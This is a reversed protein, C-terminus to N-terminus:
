GNVKVVVMTFDDHQMTQGTFRAVEENIKNLIQQAPLAGCDCIIKNLNEEGFEEGKKNMSESIGDTFFVFVDGPEVAITQEQITQSFLPGKELGIAIGKPHMFEPAGSKSKRVILPNHGARAFRLVREQMDFLGYIVSIFIDRPVNEYFIANMESLMDKPNRRTKSLTKLIGKAMTMYFAASVGKGSVDGIVIGISQDGNMIFDYYDGGVEMAPRCISAIELNPFQPISQPLFRMQVNRAIELEKLFREREAIRSVYEPVYHEFDKVSRKSYILSVGLTLLLLLFVATGIGPASLWGAPALSILSLETLFKTTFFGLLITVIDYKIAFHAWLWALPLLFIASIHSPQIYYLHLGSLALLLTFTLTLVRPNHIKSKLYTLIFLFLILGYFLMANINRLVASIAAATDELLWLVDSEFTLYGLNLIGTLWVLVLFTLLSVGSIFLADLLAKGIERVKFFGRVMTDTLALREPWIDRNLSETASYLILIGIGAFLASFGGGLLTEQFDPWTNLAVYFFTCTMAVGALWLARKYELEDHKLKRIFITVILVSIAIWIVLTTILSATRSTNHFSGYVESESDFGVRVRFDTIARGSIHIDYSETLNASIPSPRTFVFDYNLVRDEKNIIKNKLTIDAISIGLRQLFAEAEKVAESEEFNPPRNFFPAEQELEVLNGQFDYRVSFRADEAGEKTEVEGRWTVVWSAIPLFGRSTSQVSKIQAYNLLDENLDIEIEHPFDYKVFESARYMEEALRLAEPQSLEPRLLTVLSSQSVIGFFLGICVCGILARRISKSRSEPNM